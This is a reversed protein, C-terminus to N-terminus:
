HILYLRGIGWLNDKGPTGEDRARANLISIIDERSSFPLRSRILAIAGAVHPAACSTGSFTSPAYVRTSVYTPATIDPKIRGDRTPGQSSFSELQLNEWNFAGVAIVYPCTASCRVSMEPSFYEPYRFGAVSGSGTISVHLRVPDSGRVRRIGVGYRGPTSIFGFLEEYPIDNGDQINNSRNVIEWDSGNWYFLYFDFDQDSGSYHNASWTGWDDWDLTVQYYRDVRSEMEMVEDDGYFNIWGDGDPDMPLSTWHLRGENGASKVWLIGHNNAREMMDCIPGTGDSASIGTFSLSMNIIDIHNEICFEVADDLDDYSDIAILTLDIEPAFDYIIEACATGHISTGMGGQDIFSVGTVNAPLEIGLLEQYAYFGGDIIAVRIVTGGTRLPPKTQWHHAGTIEVGESIIDPYPRIVKSIFTVTPDSLLREMEDLCILTDRGDEKYITKPTIKEQTQGTSSATNISPSVDQKEPYRSYIRAELQGAHLEIGNEQAFLEAAQLGQNKYIQYLRYLPYAIRPHTDNNKPVVGALDTVTYGTRVPAPEGAMVFFVTMLGLILVVTLKKM